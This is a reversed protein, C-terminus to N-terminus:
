HQCHSAVTRFVPRFFLMKALLYPHKRALEVDPVKGDSVEYRHQKGNRVYDVFFDFDSESVVRRLEFYVLLKEHPTRTPDGYPHWYSLRSIEPHDTAVIEVLDDQYDALRLAPMFLHNNVGGETRLNSYMAYSSETKLGLYPSAGNAVILVFFIWLYGPRATASSAVPRATLQRQRLVAVAYTLGLVCAWLLWLYMTYNFVYFLGTAGTYDGTLYIGTMLALLVPVGIRVARVSQRALASPLRARLSGLWETIPGMCFVAYFAFMIASFTWHGILGLLLHFPLGITMGIYRTKRFTLLLPLVIEIALFIWLASNIAWAQTPMPIASFREVVDMYMGSVCSLDLNIFDWNLKSLFIIYYVAILIAALVPAIRDFVENRRQDSMQGINQRDRYVAFVIALLIMLEVFFELFIHNAVGPWNGFNYVLNCALLASFMLLSRPYLVTAVAFLTVLLGFVKEQELWTPFFTQHILIQSAWILAFVTLRDPLISGAERNNTNVNIDIM